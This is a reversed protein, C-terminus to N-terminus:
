LFLPAPVGKFDVWADYYRYVQEEDDKEVTDAHVTWLAEEGECIDCPSYSGKTLTSTKGEHYIVEDANMRSKDALTIKVGKAKGETLSNKVEMEDTFIVTGSPSLLSVNGNASILNNQTDYSVSDCKLITDEQEIVVNGSAVVIKNNDDYTIKDAELSIPKNEDLTLDSMGYISNAAAPFACFACAAFSFLSFINLQKQM